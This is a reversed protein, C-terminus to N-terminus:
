LSVAAPLLAARAQIALGGSTKSIRSSCNPIRDSSEACLRAITDRVQPNSFREILTHKYETLDVGPVPPLTPTAEENMYGLLFAQGVQHAAIAQGRRDKSGDPYWHGRGIGTRNRVPRTLWM